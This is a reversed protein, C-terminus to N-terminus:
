ISLIDNADWGTINKAFMCYGYGLPPDFRPEWGPYKEFGLFLRGDSKFDKKLNESVSIEISLSHTDDQGYSRELTLFFFLCALILYSAISLSLNTLRLKM